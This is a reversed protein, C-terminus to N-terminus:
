EAEFLGVPLHIREQEDRWVCISPCAPARPPVPRMEHATVNEAVRDYIALADTVRGERCIMRAEKILLMADRLKEPPIANANQREEILMLIQLDRVACGRTFSGAAVGSVTFVCLAAAAVSALGHLMHTRM